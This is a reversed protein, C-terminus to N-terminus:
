YKLIKKVSKPIGVRYNVFFGKIYLFILGFYFIGKNGDSRGPSIKKIMVRGCDFDNGKYVITISFSYLQNFYLKKNISNEQSLKEKSVFFKIEILKYFTM